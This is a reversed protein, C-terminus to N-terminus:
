ADESGGARYSEFKQIDAYSVRFIVDGAMLRLSSCNPKNCTCELTQGDGVGVFEKQLFSLAKEAAELKKETATLQQKLDQYCDGRPSYRFMEYEQHTDELSKLRDYMDKELLPIMEDRNEVFVARRFNRAWESKFKSYKYEHELELRLAERYNTWTDTEVYPMINVYLDGLCEDIVDKIKKRFGDMIEQSEKQLKEEDYKLDSM